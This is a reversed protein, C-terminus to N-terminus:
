VRVGNERVSIFSFVPSFEQVQLLGTLGWTVLSLAM